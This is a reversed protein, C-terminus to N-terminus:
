PQKFLKETTLAIFSSYSNETTVSLLFWSFLAIAQGYSLHTNLVMDFVVTWFYKVAWLLFKGKCSNLEFVLFEPVSLSDGTRYICHVNLTTTIYLWKGFQSSKVKTTLEPLKRLVRFLSKAHRSSQQRFVFFYKCTDIDM